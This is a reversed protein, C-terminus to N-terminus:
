PEHWAAAVAARGTLRTKALIHHVHDKVTALTISLARAIQQNTLGASVLAAVERERCSLSTFRAAAGRPAPGVVAIVAEASGPRSALLTVPRADASALAVLPGRAIGSGTQASLAAAAVWIAELLDDGVGAIARQQVDV